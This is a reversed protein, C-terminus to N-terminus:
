AKNFYAEVQAYNNDVMQKFEECGKQYSAMWDKLAKKGEEPMWAAQGLFSELLKQNQEYVLSMASFSNDFAMKNFNIIQKAIQSYEM